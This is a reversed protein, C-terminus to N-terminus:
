LNDKKPRFLMKEFELIETEEPLDEKIGDMFIKSVLKCREVISRRLTEPVDRAVYKSLSVGEGIPFISFEALM